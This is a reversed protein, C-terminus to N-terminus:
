EGLHSAGSGIQLRKESRLLALAQDNLKIVADDLSGVILLTPSKVRPLATAALNPRGGRSVVAGISDGLQSLSLDLDFEKLRASPERVDFCSTSLSRCSACERARRTIYRTASRRRLAPSALRVRAKQVSRSVLPDQEDLNDLLEGRKRLIVSL